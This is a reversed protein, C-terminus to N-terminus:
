PEVLLSQSVPFATGLGLVGDRATHYDWCQCSKEKSSGTRVAWHSALLMFAGEKERERELGGDKRCMLVWERLRLEPKLLEM